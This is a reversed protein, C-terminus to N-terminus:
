RYIYCSNYITNSEFVMDFHDLSILLALVSFFQIGVLHQRTMPLNGYSKKGQKSSELFLFVFFDFNLVVLWSIPSHYLVM